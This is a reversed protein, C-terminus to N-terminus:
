KERSQNFLWSFQQSAFVPESGKTETNQIDFYSDKPLGTKKNKSKAATLSATFSLRLTKTPVPMQKDGGPHLSLCVAPSLLGYLPILCCAICLCSSVSGTCSSCPCLTCLLFGSFHRPLPVTPPYPLQWLTMTVTKWQDCTREIIGVPFMHALSVENQTSKHQDVTLHVVLATHPATHMPPLKGDWAVM